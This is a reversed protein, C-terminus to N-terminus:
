GHKANAPMTCGGAIEKSISCATAEKPTMSPLQYSIMYGPNGDACAVEIYGTQEATTGVVKEGSVACSTKGLKRLDDTLHPLAADAPTFSCRYGELESHACDYVAAKEASSAPFIAVAGDPRNSCALEVVEHGPVNVNFPSYKSVTCNFGAAQALRTYLGAQQTEAERANTLTCGGGIGGAADCGIAQVLKGDAGQQLVWGKGDTCAVEYYNSMDQATLIYRKDKVQCAKGSQAVLNDVEALQAKPDSLKCALQPASEYALCTVMQVPQDPRPPSSATIVYGRGNSCAVEFYSARAGHGIGRVNTPDCAVKTAAIYPALKAKDDSNDPLFCAAGNAKGTTPDVKAQDLCTAWSPPQGQGHDVLIYGIATGCAVEYYKTTAKTKPDQAQGIFRADSMQCPLNAAQILAPAAKKGANRAESTIQPPKFPEPAAATTAAHASGALAALAILMAGFTALGFPRPRM